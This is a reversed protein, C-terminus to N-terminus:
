IVLPWPVPKETVTPQQAVRTAVRHSSLGEHVSRVVAKNQEASMWHEEKKTESMRKSGIRGTRARMHCFDAM